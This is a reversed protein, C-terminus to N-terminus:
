AIWLSGELATMTLFRRAPTATSLPTDVRVLTRLRVDTPPELVVLSRAPAFTRSREEPWPLAPL